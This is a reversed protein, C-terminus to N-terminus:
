HKKINCNIEFSVGNEIQRNEKRITKKLQDAIRYLSEENKSNIVIVVHNEKQNRSYFYRQFANRKNSQRNLQIERSVTEKRKIFM